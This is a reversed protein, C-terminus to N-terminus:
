RCYSSMFKIPWAKIFPLVVTIMGSDAIIELEKKSYDEVALIPDGFTSVDVVHLIPSIIRSGNWQISTSNELEWREFLISDNEHDNWHTSHIVAYITDDQAIEFFCIVKSPFYQDSWM